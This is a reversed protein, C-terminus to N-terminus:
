NQKEHKIVEINAKILLEVGDNDRYFEKYVVRKIGSQIILKSCDVCPSITTYMTSGDSSQTSKALKTIANSEAHLVEPKTTLASPNSPSYKHNFECKNDFGRPTGNYGDSIIVGDKVILCGVKKRIAKSLRSWIEAMALYAFDLEDQSAM